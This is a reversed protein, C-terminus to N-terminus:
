VCEKNRLVALENQLGVIVAKAKDLEGQLGASDSKLGNEAGAMDVCRREKIFGKVAEYESEDLRFTRVKRM